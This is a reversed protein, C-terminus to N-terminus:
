LFYCLLLALDLVYEAVSASSVLGGFSATVSTLVLNTVQTGTGDFLQGSSSYQLLNQYSASIYQTSLNSIAM